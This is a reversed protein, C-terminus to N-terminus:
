HLKWIYVYICDGSLCAIDNVHWFISRFRISMVTTIIIIFHRVVLIFEDCGWLSSFSGEHFFILLNQRRIRNVSDLVNPPFLDKVSSECSLESVFYWGRKWAYVFEFGNESKIEGIEDGFAFLWKRAIKRRLQVRLHVMMRQLRWMQPRDWVVWRWLYRCFMAIDIIIM